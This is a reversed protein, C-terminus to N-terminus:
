RNNKMGQVAPMQQEAWNERVHFTDLGALIRVKELIEGVAQIGRVALIGRVVLIGRM